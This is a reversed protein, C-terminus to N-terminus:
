LGGVWYTKVEGTIKNVFNRVVMGQDADFIIGQIPDRYARLMVHEGGSDEWDGKAGGNLEKLIDKIKQEKKSEMRM